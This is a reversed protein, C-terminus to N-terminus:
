LGLLHQISRLPTLKTVDIVERDANFAVTVYEQPVFAAYAPHRRRQEETPTYPLINGSPQLNLHVGYEQQIAEATTGPKYKELARHYKVEPPVLWVALALLCAAGLASWIVKRSRKM